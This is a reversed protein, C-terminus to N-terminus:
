SGVVAALETDDDDDGKLTEVFAKAEPKLASVLRVKRVAGEVRVSKRETKFIPQFLATVDPESWGSLDNEKLRWSQFDSALEAMTKGILSTIGTPEHTDVYKLYQLGLSNIFMHELQLEMAKTTPALEKAVNAELVYHDILLALFAGLMEGTLMKKEFIPDQAYVNPFEFRILRKQLALSKDKSKPEGNLGEIFLANTQVMTPTSEYLRRIPVPEGAILSKEMGSDKVYESKGDFVINLLKGNLETVVPNEEAIQQRTVSSANEKGFVAQLMKLLLSKGNRGEGILLIYKVASWGPALATALHRLLAHAEQESDVWEAITDLVAAKAETDTNLMPKLTNPVFEGTPEHLQGDYRLERLGEETRVLLTNITEDVHISQQAVMFEFSSLEGDSGFLIKFDRSGLRRIKERNLPMWATRLPEPTDSPEGTEYDVPMYITSRYRVLESGVALNHAAQALEKKTKLELM